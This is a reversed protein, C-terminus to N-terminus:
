EKGVRREESRPMESPNREISTTTTSTFAAYIGPEAVTTSVVNHLTDVQGGMQKWRDENSDWRFIKVSLEEDTSELYGDNYGINIGFPTSEDVFEYQLAHASSVKIANEELGVEPVPFDSSLILVKSFSALSDSIEAYFDGNVAGIGQIKEDNEMKEYRFPTNFMFN